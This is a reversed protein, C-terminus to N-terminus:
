KEESEAQEADTLPRMTAQPVGFRTIEFVESAACREIVRTLRHLETVSITTARM